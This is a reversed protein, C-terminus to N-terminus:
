RIPLTVTKTYVDIATTRASVTLTWDGRIPVLITSIQHGPGATRLSVPLPGVGREPLRLTATVEEPDTPAGDQGFLYLHLDMSRDAAPVASVQATVRGLQLNEAVSPRYATRAPATAVLAATVALILMAAAAEAAVSRRLTRMAAPTIDPRTVPPQADLLDTASAAYVVVPSRHHHRRVWARSAAAFALAVAVLGLKLTLERGYTTGALAPLSGVQRWSQYTGTVVLVAVSGAALPSFRPIAGAVEAPQRRPLLVTVLMVLGGVWVTMAALHLSDSLFALPSAAGAGAHGAAAFTSLLAVSVLVGAPRSPTRRILALWGFWLGTGVLLLVRAGLAKGYTTDLVASLLDGRGAHSLGFGADYPGKLGLGVAAATLSTAWGLALLLRARPQVWGGPWCVSLFVAGGLFLVLGLYGVWRSLGLGLAVGQSGGDVAAPTATASAAGIAFTFAGSVPHSDASVARWSVLYSGPGIAQRLDVAIGSRHGGPHHVAGADARSGDPGVVRLSGPVTTVAEDFHLRVSAPADPLVAGPPPNSTSLTAHASAPDAVALATAFTVAVVALLRGMRAQGPALRLRPLRATRQRAQVLVEGALSGVRPLVLGRNLRAGTAWGPGPTPGAVAPAPSATGGASTGALRCLLLFGVLLLLHPAEDHLDAQGTGLDTAATLTLFAVSVGVVPLSGVALSPRLAAALFAVSIAVAFSGLEHAVHQPAAHDHGYLLVPASLALQGLGVAVLAARVPWRGLSLRSRRTLRDAQVAAVIGEALDPVREAPAMRLRAGSAQWGREWATCDRCGAVHRLVLEPDAGSEEGDLMASLAEQIQECTVSVYDAQPSSYNGFFRGSIAQFEPNSGPSTPCHVREAGALVDTGVV